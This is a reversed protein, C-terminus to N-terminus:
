EGGDAGATRAKEEQGWRESVRHDRSDEQTMHGAM